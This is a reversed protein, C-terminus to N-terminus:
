EFEEVSFNMEIKIKSNFLKDVCEPDEGELWMLVTFRKAQEPRLNDIKESCITDNDVFYTAEPMYSPYVYNIEDPAMYMNFTDYEIENIEEKEVVVGDTIVLVRIAKSLDKSEDTIELNYFLMTNEKGTNKVYFTYALYKIDDQYSGDTKIADGIHLIGYTTDMVDEVPDASLWQSIVSFDQKESLILGRKYGEDDISMVFNGANQGYYTIFALLAFLFAFVAFAIRFFRRNAIYKKIINM